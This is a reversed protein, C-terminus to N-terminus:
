KANKLVKKAVTIDKKIQDLLNKKSKFKKEKRLFKLFEITVNKKYLNRIPAFLHTELVDIKKRGFTPALGYNSIGNYIIKNLYLRTVYVGKLPLICDNLFVNATRYGLKRGIKDGSVVKGNVSWYRGLLKKVQSIKGLSILKRIESSSIKKGSIRKQIAIKTSFYKKLLNPNGVRNKGFKFEKGVIIKLPSIKAKLIKEIFNQATMNRLSKNFKLIILYDIKMITLIKQKERLSIIKFNKVKSFFEKPNPDFTLLGIKRKNKKAFRAAENLISVHGKHLGDFNGIVLISNNTVKLNYKNRFIKM